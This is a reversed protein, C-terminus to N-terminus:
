EPIFKINANEFSKHIKKKFKFKLSNDTIYYLHRITDM